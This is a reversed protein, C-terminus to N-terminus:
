ASGSSPAENARLAPRAERLSTEIELVLPYSGGPVRRSILEIEGLTNVAERIDDLTACDDSYLVMAYNLKMKLTIDHSGGHVRRAVPMTKRLLSKAEKSRQLSLLAAANNNAGLIGRVTLPVPYVPGLLNQAM